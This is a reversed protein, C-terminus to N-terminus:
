PFAVILPLRPVFTPNNCVTHTRETMEEETMIRSDWQGVGFPTFESSNEYGKVPVSCFVTEGGVEVDSFYIIFTIMKNAQPWGQDDHHPFYFAPVDDHNDNYKLLKFEQSLIAVGGINWKPNRVVVDECCRRQFRRRVQFTHVPHKTQRAIRDLVNALTANALLGDHSLHAVFRNRILAKKSLQLQDKGFDM